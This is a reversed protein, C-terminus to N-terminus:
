GFLQFFAPFTGLVGLGILVLAVALARRTEYVGTRMRLHLVLWAVLWVLVAATTKGSLPGVADSWTLWKKVATSAEALTTLLGLAASGAGAALVAAAIPGEPKPAGPVRREADPKTMM